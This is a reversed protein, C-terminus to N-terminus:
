DVVIRCSHNVRSLMHRVHWWTPPVHPDNYMLRAPISGRGDKELAAITELAEAADAPTFIVEQFNVKSV